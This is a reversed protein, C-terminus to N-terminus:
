YGALTGISLLEQETKNLYRGLFTRIEPALGWETKGMPMEVKYTDGHCVETGVKQKVKRNVYKGKVLRRKTVEKFLTKEYDGAVASFGLAGLIISCRQCCSKAPCEIELGREQYEELKDTKFECVNRIFQTLAYMEAHGGKGTAGVVIQPTESDDIYHLKAACSESQDNVLKEKADFDDFYQQMWSKTKQRKKQPESM